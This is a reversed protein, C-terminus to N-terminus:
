KRIEFLVLVQGGVGNKVIKGNNIKAERDGGERIEKLKMRLAKDMEQQKKTLDPTIFLRKYRDINRLNKARTLIEKRGEMTKLKIRLPRLKGESVRGLRMMMEVHRDPDISLGSGLIEALEEKDKELSEEPIGHIVLNYKRREIELSEEMDEKVASIGEEMERKVNNVWPGDNICATTLEKVQKEIDGKNVEGHNSKLYNSIEIIEGKLDKIDSMVTFLSSQLSKHGQELEEQRKQLHSIDKVTKIVSDNCDDCFWHLNMLKQMNGYLAADINVCAAHFWTECAECAVGQEKKGVAANCKGCKEKRSM